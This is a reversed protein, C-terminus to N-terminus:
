DIKPFFIKINCEFNLDGCMMVQITIILVRFEGDMSQPEIGQVEMENKM